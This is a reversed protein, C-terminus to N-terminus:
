LERVVVDVVRPRGPRPAPGEEVHFGAAALAEVLARPTRPDAGSEMLARVLRGKTAKNHHSVVVRTRKGGRVVDQLVRAVVTRAALAEDPQWMAAYASSRLDLVVGRGAAAAMPGDLVGRWTRAVPGVSPLDVDASLRYAPIRDGLRVAGLLASMVVVQRQARRRGAPTMTALDLADYLVGQYVQAARAAPSTRLTADRDVEAQQGASLGLVRRARAPDGSALRVVADVVEDRVSALEPFSLAALDAPRGRAPAAKKESPPLLVLVRADQRV